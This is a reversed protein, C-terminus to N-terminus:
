QGEALQALRAIIQHTVEWGKRNTGPVTACSLAVLEWTGLEGGEQERLALVWAAAAAPYM